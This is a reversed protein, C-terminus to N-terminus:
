PTSGGSWARLETGGQSKERQLRGCIDGLDPVQLRLQLIHLFFLLAKLLLYNRGLENCGSSLLLLWRGGRVDWQWDNKASIVGLRWELLAFGKHFM